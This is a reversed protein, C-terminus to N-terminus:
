AKAGKPGEAYERARGVEKARSVAVGLDGPATMYDEFKWGAKVSRIAKDVRSLGGTKPKRNCRWCYIVMVLVDMGMKRREGTEQNIATYSYLGDDRAQAGTPFYGGNWKIGRVKIPAACFDCKLEGGDADKGTRRLVRLVGEFVGGANPRTAGPNRLMAAARVDEPLEEPRWVKQPKDPPTKSESM